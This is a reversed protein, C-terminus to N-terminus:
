AQEKTPGSSRSAASLRAGVRDLREAAPDTNIGTSVIIIGGIVSGIGVAITPVTYDGFGTYALAMLLPGGASGVTTALNVLSYKAAYQELPFGALVFLSALVFVNGITFGLLVSGALLGPLDHAGAIVFQAVGQCVAIGLAFWRIGLRALVAIGAFRAIFSSGAVVSLALEGAGIGRERAFLLLHIMTANQSLVLLAFGIMLLALVPSLRTGLVRFSGTPVVTASAVDEEASPIRPTIAKPETIVFAAIMTAAFMVGGTAVSGWTIGLWDLTAAVLPPLIAGGISMGSTAVTIAPGPRPQFARAILETLTVAGTFASSCGLVLYAPWLEWVTESIGIGSMGVLEGFGGVILLTVIRHRRLLRAVLLGIGGGGLASITAGFSVENVTFARETTLQDLYVSTSYFSMGITLALVVFVSGM